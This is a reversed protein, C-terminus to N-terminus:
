EVLKQILPNVPKVQAAGRGVEADDKAAPPKAKDGRPAPKPPATRRAVQGGICVKGREGDFVAAGDRGGVVIEATEGAYRM